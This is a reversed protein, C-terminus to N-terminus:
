THMTGARARLESAVQRWRGREAPDTAHAAHVRDIHEACAMLAAARTPRVARWPSCDRCLAVVSRLGADLQTPQRM